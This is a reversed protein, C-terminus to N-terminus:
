LSLIHTVAVQAGTHPCYLVKSKYYTHLGAAELAYKAAAAVEFSEYRQGNNLLMAARVQRIDIQM